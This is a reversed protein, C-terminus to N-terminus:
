RGTSARTSGTNSTAAPSSCSRSKSWAKSPQNWRTIAEGGSPTRLSRRRFTRGPSVGGRSSSRCAPRSRESCRSKEPGQRRSGNSRSAPRSCCIARRASSPSSACLACRGSSQAACDIAPMARQTASSRRRSLRRGRSESPSSASSCSSQRRRRQFQRPPPFHNALSRSFADTSARRSAILASSCANRSRESASRAAQRRSSSRGSHSAYSSSFRPAPHRSKRSRSKRARSRTRSSAATRASSECRNVWTSTSSNWSVSGSCASIRRRIAESSAASDLQLLDRVEADLFRIRVRYRREDIPQERLAAPLHALAVALIPHRHLRPVHAQEELAHAVVAAVEGTSVDVRQFRPPDRVHRDAPSRVVRSLFHQRHAGGGGGDLPGVVLQRYERDELTREERQAVVRQEEEALAVAPQMRKSGARRVGAGGFGGDEVGQRQEGVQMPLA